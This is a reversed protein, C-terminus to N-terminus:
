DDGIEVIEVLTVDHTSRFKRYIEFIAQEARSSFQPLQSAYNMRCKDLLDKGLLNEFDGYKLRISQNKLASENAITPMMREYQKDEQIHSAEVEEPIDMLSFDEDDCDEEEVDELFEEIELDDDHSSEMPIMTEQSVTCDSRNWPYLSSEGFDRVIAARDICNRNITQMMKACEVISFERGSTQCYNRVEEIWGAVLTNFMNFTPKLM